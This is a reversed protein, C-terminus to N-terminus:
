RPDVHVAKGQNRKFDKWFAMVEPHSRVDDFIVYGGVPVREYFYYMAEQYYPGACVARCMM